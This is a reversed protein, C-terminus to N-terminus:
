DILDEIIRDIKDVVKAENEALTAKNTTPRFSHDADKIVEIDYGPIVQKLTNLDCNPDSDGIIFSIPLNAGKLHEQPYIHNLNNPEHLVYGLVIVKLIDFKHESAIITSLVGGYSKGILVINKNGLHRICSEIENKNIAEDIKLGNDVYSFNFRVVSYKSKLHEFLKVILGYNMDNNTGHALIINLPSNAKKSINLTINHDQSKLKEIM